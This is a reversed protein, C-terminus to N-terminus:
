DFTYGNAKFCNWCAEPGFLLCIDGISQWLEDFTRAAAARLHAKASKHTSLNDLIVVDGFGLTPALQTAFYTDFAAKNM